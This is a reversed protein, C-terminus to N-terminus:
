PASSLGSPTQCARKYINDKNIASNSLSMNGYVPSCILSNQHLTLGRAETKRRGKRGKGGGDKGLRAVPPGLRFAFSFSILATSPPRGLASAGQATAGAAPRLTKFFHFDDGGSGKKLRPPNFTLFPSRWRICASGPCPGNNM